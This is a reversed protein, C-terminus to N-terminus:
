LSLVLTAEQEFSLIPSASQPRGCHRQGSKKPVQPVPDNSVQGPAPGVPRVSSNAQSYGEPRLIYRWCEPSAASPRVKSSHSPLLQHLLSLVVLDPPTLDGPQSVGTEMCRLEPRLGGSPLGVAQIWTAQRAGEHVQQSVSGSM